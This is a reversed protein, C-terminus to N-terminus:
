ATALKRRRWGYGVLGLAGFGALVIGSPEPVDSIFIYTVGGPVWGPEPAGTATLGPTYVLGSMGNGLDVEDRTVAGAQATPIGVDSTFPPNGPVGSDPGGPQLDSFVFLLGGFGPQPGNVFRLLDSSATQGQERVLVDGPTPNVIGLSDGVTFFMTAM